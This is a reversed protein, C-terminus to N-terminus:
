KMKEKYRKKKTQRNKEELKKEAPNVLANSYSHRLDNATRKKKDAAAAGIERYM